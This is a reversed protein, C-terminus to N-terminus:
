YVPYYKRHKHNADSKEGLVLRVLSYLAKPLAKAHFHFRIKKNDTSLALFLKKSTFRVGGGKYKYDGFNIVKEHSYLHLM